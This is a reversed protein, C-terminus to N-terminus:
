RVLMMKRTESYGEAQMRYFYVGSPFASANWDTHYTGAQLTENVLVDVEKGTMDFVTIMVSSSKSIEFSIKTVPNFPNPYNQSLSFEKPVENSILQIGITTCNTILTGGTGTILSPINIITSCNVSIFSPSVLINGPSAISSVPSSSNGCTVFSSNFKEFSIDVGGSGYSNVGGTVLYGGDMTQIIGGDGDEFGTSLGAVKSWLLTGISDIKVIYVDDGSSTFSFSRGSVLYGGDATQIIGGDGDDFLTGGIAKSWLFTGSNDLKVIYIDSSGAGFSTTHGSIAYGNDATQIISYAQDDLPGGITKNWLLSGGADLKVVYMNNGGVGSSATYGAATYGGDTTQIISYALDDNTGGVTKSWQLTGGADLKIIYMDKGGGGFSETYGAVAYGGDLTQIISYALDDGMEGFTRSWQLTGGANLKAILMDNGSAGFSATYGAVAYGGDTTQIISRGYDDGAGGLTKSWQLTGNSRLKIIYVDENGNGVGFSSTYGTVACGSDLTRTISYAQDNSTGGIASQFQTQGKVSLSVNILLLLFILKRM